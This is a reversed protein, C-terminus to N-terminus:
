EFYWAGADLDAVEIVLSDGEVKAELYGPWCGGGKNATGVQSTLYQNGCNNCVMYEGSQSYGKKEQYCVDCADFAAHPVGASDLVVFYKVKTGDSTTHSYYSAKTSLDALPISIVDAASDGGGTDTSTQRYEQPTEEYVNPEGTEVPEDKMLAFGGVLIAVVAVAAIALAVTRNKRDRAEALRRREERRSSKADDKRSM